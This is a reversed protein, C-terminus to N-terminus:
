AIQYVCSYLFAANPNTTSDMVLGATPDIFGRKMTGSGDYDWICRTAVKPAYEAKFTGYRVRDSIYQTGGVCYCRSIFVLKGIQYAVFDSVRSADAFVDSKSLNKIIPLGSLDSYNGSTAVTALTSADVKSGLESNVKNSSWVRDTRVEADNILSIEVPEDEADTIFYLQGNEQEEVPLLDYEAQTLEVYDVGTSYNVGNFMIEGM